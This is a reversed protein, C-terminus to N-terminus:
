SKEKYLLMIPLIILSLVRWFVECILLRLIVFLSIFVGSKKNFSLFLTAGQITAEALLTAADLRWFFEKNKRIQAYPPSDLFGILLPLKYIFQPLGLSKGERMKEIVRVYRRILSSSPNSKLLYIFLARGELILNRRRNSGSRHMGSSLSRLSLNLIKLDKETDMIPLDFLSKLRELGLRNRLRHGILTGIITIFIIPFPIFLKKKRVRQCSIVSLFKTFSIPEPSAICIVGTALNDAEAICLLGGALDDVHIPQVNPSPLFAPLIPLRKVLSVLMGFLGQESGGYVQGPRIVWGDAAIVDQEIKWKLRGYVTPADHHATQSSIYIFKAEIKKTAQILVQAASIETKNNNEYATIAALHIVVDIDEQLIIPDVNNLDYPFWKSSSFPRRRSALIVEHGKSSALTTLRSGIYGSAGTIFIKM